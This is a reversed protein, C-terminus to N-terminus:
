RVRRQRSLRLAGAADVRARWLPAVYTTSSYEAIVAPGVITAGAGLQERVFLPVQCPRGDVFAQVHAAARATAAGSARPAFPRRASSSATVRLGVVELPRTDDSTHFRAAHQADFRRRLERDLPVELEIAQGRYRARVVTTVGIEGAGFGENALARRAAAEAPAAKRQLWGLQPDVAHLSVIRDVIVRGGLVGHASLLGPDPPIFIDAFGIQECLGCAHLGAAGGFPLLTCTRPDEGRQVTIVRIAREMNGEIVRVIGEAAEEVVSGTSRSRGRSGNMRAAVAMVARRARELDLQMTGGLFHQAPLRGLVVNADTVTARDGRGYCAPGPDAGASEPGVVLAGGEDVRAISGGGAGVTHIDLCPVRLPLGGIETVARRAPEGQVFAVDTSTGGMDLTVIRAIGARRAAEAAAAVGGAPGSLMTRVPERAATAAGVAGGNSQMVRFTAARSDRALARIHGQVKPQVYANAVATSTREYEGAVPSLAHSLTVPVRLARLARGIRREHAPSVHSHLFCVAVSEARSARIASVIRRCEAQSLALLVRGDFLSREAAGLRLGREVLPEPKQPELDYLDPRAQRGIELVDEFGATTVLATRAGRRELMANTAVTTGYTLLDPRRQGFLRRLGELVAEAPDQPTSLLKLRGGRTGDRYVIDTFTGGTDVGIVLLRPRARKM